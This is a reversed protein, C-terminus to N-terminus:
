YFTIEPHQRLADLVCNRARASVTKTDFLDGSLLVAEVGKESAQEVMQTFTRLIELRRQAAKEKPLGSEMCSDLHLDACHILKM